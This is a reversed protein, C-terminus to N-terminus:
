MGTRVERGSEPAALPPTLGREGAARANGGWGVACYSVQRAQEAAGDGAAGAAERGGDGARRRAGPPGHRAGGAAAKAPAALGDM